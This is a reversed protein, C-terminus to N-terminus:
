EVRTTLDDDTDDTDSATTNDTDSEQHRHPKCAAHASCPIAGRHPKQTARQRRESRRTPTVNSRTPPPSTRLTTNAGRRPKRWAPQCTPAPPSAFPPPSHKHTSTRCRRPHRQRLWPVRGVRAARDWDRRRRYRAPSAASFVTVNNWTERSKTLRKQPVFALSPHDCPRRRRVSTSPLTGVGDQRATNATGAEHVSVDRGMGLADDECLAGSRAVGHLNTTNEQRQLLWKMRHYGGNRHFLRLTHAHSASALVMAIFVVLDRSIMHPSANAIAEGAKRQKLWHSIHGM